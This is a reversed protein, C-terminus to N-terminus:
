VCPDQRRRSRRSYRDRGIRRPQPLARSGKDAPRASKRRLAFRTERAIEGYYHLVSRLTPLDAATMGAGSPHAAILAEALQSINDSITMASALFYCHPLTDAFFHQLLYTKGVRRRGYLLM